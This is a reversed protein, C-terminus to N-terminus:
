VELVDEVRAWNRAREVASKFEDRSWHPHRSAPGAEELELIRRLVSFRGLTDSDDPVISSIGDSALNAASQPTRRWLSPVVQRENRDPPWKTEECAKLHVVGRLTNAVVARRAPDTAELATFIRTFTETLTGAHTTAIVLHGTAAMKFVDKWESDDRVEGIFFCAPTQRLANSVASKLSDVDQRKSRPTFYLGLKLSPEGPAVDLKGEATMLSWDEVPDEYTVLHPCPVIQRNEPDRNHVILYRLAVSKSIQTKCCKTAGSFLMLGQAGGVSRWGNAVRHIMGQAALLSDAIADISWLYPRSADCSRASPPPLLGIPSWSTAAKLTDTLRLTCSLYTGLGAFCLLARAEGLVDADDLKEVLEVKQEFARSGNYRPNLFQCVTQVLPPSLRTRWEGEPIYLTFDKSQSSECEARALGSLAIRFKDM